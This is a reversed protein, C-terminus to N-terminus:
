TRPVVAHRAVLMLVGAVALAGAAAWSPGALSGTHDYLYGAFVPGLIQGVAFLLPYMTSAWHPELSMGWDVGPRSEDFQMTSQDVVFNRSYVIMPNGGVFKGEEHTM